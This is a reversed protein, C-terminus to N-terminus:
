VDKPKDLTRRLFVTDSPMAVKCQSLSKLAQRNTLGKTNQAEYSLKSFGFCLLAGLKCTRSRSRLKLTSPPPPRPKLHISISVITDLALDEFIWIATTIQRYKALRDLNHIEYGHLPPSTPFSYSNLICRFISM